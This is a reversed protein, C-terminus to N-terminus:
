LQDADPAPKLDFTNNIASIYQYQGVTGALEVLWRDGHRSRLREFVDDSVKNTQLLQRVFLVIDREDPELNTVDASHRIADVAQERMGAKRGTVVHSAWEYAADKERAVALIALEREVPSLTSQLRVHAGAEMVKQALGPSHMLLAFPGRVAHLVDVIRDFEAHREPPLEAKDTILPIRPVPM